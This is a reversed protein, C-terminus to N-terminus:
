LIFSYLLVILPIIHQNKRDLPPIENRQLDYMESNETRPIEIPDDYSKM